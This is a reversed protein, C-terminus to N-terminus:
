KPLYWNAPTMLKTRIIEKNDSYKEAVKNALYAPDNRRIAVRMLDHFRNGEFATELAYEKILEDEVFSITDVNARIIFFTTDINLNGLGRMKTGVNNTFKNDTFDLYTIIGGPTPKSSVILTSDYTENYIVPKRATRPNLGSKMTEFALNSYGLRNIAEAYKLYIHSNRNVFIIKQDDDSNILLYKLILYDEDYDVKKTEDYNSFANAASAGLRLDGDTAGFDNNYYLGSTWNNIAVTTPAVHRKFTLSDITFPHGYDPSSALAAVTELGSPTFLQEWKDQEIKLPLNVKDDFQWLSRYDTSILLDENYMLIYYCMAAMRYYTEAAAANGSGELISAKWLYLDGLVLKAPFLSQSSKFSAFLGMNAGDENVFPMLDQILYDCLTSLDVVEYDKDVDDSTLIPNTIYNASGHNLVLQLYTWARISKAAAMIRYNPKNGKSILSTDLHQIAYNCNNIVAYYEKVSAYPNDKTVTFENIQKLFRSADDTTEMLEGRLEGLLVYRDGLKQLESLIGVIAYLSDHDSGMRYDEEYTYRDSDINLMGDCSVMTLAAALLLVPIYRVKKM